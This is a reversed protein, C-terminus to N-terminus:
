APVDSQKIAAVREILEETRPGTAREAADELDQVNIYGKNRQPAGSADPIPRGSVDRKADFKSWNAEYNPSGARALVTNPNDAHPLMGPIFNHTYLRAVTDIPGRRTSYHREAWRLQEKVPLARFKSLDPDSDTDYGIAKAASPTLSFIGSAYGPGISRSHNNSESAWVRLPVTEDTIGLRQCLALFTEIDENTWDNSRAPPVVDGLSFGVVPHGNRLIM